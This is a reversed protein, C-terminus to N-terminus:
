GDNVVIFITYLGMVYLHNDWIIVVLWFTNSYNYRDYVMSNLVVRPQKIPLSGYFLILDHRFLPFVGKITMFWPKYACTKSAHRSFCHSKAVSPELDVQLTASKCPRALPRILWITKSYKYRDYVMTVTLVVMTLSKRSFKGMYIYIYWIM